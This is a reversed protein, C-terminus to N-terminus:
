VGQAFVVDLGPIDVGASCTVPISAATEGVREKDKRGWLGDFERVCWDVTTRQCDSIRSVAGRKAEIHDIRIRPFDVEGFFRIAIYLDGVICLTRSREPEFRDSVTGVFESAREISAAVRYRIQEDIPGATILNAQETIDKPDRNRVDTERADIDSAVFIGAPDSTFDTSTTRLNAM